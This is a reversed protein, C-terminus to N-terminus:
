STLFDLESREYYKRVHGLEYELYFSHLARFVNTSKPFGRNGVDRRLTPVAKRWWPLVGRKRGVGSRANCTLM